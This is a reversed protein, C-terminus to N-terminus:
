SLPPERLFLPPASQSDREAPLDRGYALWRFDGLAAPDVLRLLAERRALREALALGEDATSLGHLAQAM